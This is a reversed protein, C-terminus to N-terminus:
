QGNVSESKIGIMGPTAGFPPPIADPLLGSQEFSRPSFAQKKMEETEHSTNV